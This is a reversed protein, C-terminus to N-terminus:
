CVTQGLAGFGLGAYSPYGLGAAALSIWVFQKDPAGGLAFRGHDTSVTRHDQFAAGVGEVVTDLEPDPATHGFALAACQELLVGLDNGPSLEKGGLALVAAGDLCVGAPPRRNPRSLSHHADTTPPM